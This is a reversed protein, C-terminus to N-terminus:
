PVLSAIFGLILFHDIGFVLSSIGFLFPGSAILKELLSNRRQASHGDSLTGALILASAGLAVGEFFVSRVSLDMPAAIVRPGELFLACLLFLLGLVIASLRARVNAALSFGALLFVAGALCALLPNAPYWPVGRVTLGLRACILNEVGFPIIAIGFLGQGKTIIKEM